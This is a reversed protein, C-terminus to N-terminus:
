QLFEKTLYPYFTIQPNWDILNRTLLQDFHEAQTPYFGLKTIFFTSARCVYKMRYEKGDEMNGFPLWNVSVTTTGKAKYHSLIAKM